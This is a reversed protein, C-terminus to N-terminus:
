QMECVPAAFEGNYSGQFGISHSQGTAISATHDLGEIRITQSDIQTYSASWGNGLTVEIPFKLEAIWGNVLETGINSLTIGELVFGGPWVNQSGLTCTVTPDTVTIAIVSIDTLPAKNEDIAVVSVLQEGLTTATFIADAGDFVYQIEGAFEAMFGAANTVDASVSLVKNLEIRDGNAPSIVTLGSPLVDLANLSISDSVESVNGTADIGVLEVVFSTAESPTTVVVVGQDGAAILEGNIYANAGAFKNLDYSIEVDSGTKVSSADAPSTITVSATLSAYYDTVNTGNAGLSIQHDLGIFQGNQDKWLSPEFLAYKEADWTKWDYGLLGGTDGSNPNICWFTHHLGHEIILDRIAVMWKENDGGDMYGGWEGILLPAINEEHIFMWNDKWVDEYLTDKNFGEYFWEQLFVLPGYDHPSYMLQDQNEGLDIPHDKVGRLNGGWWNNHYDNKDQSSWNEGDIPYSQIGECMVLLNPNIALIRKSATECAYKWNNEDTSDDWKAFEEGGYPTGHPENEIDMAIITDDDVYRKTIWEWSEYFIESTIEGKYWMPAVHGSNDAEASHVDLLIKIGYTKSAAVFADFIELDTKGSLTPNVSGNVAPLTSKGQSWEYMVETSIPVRLINIGRDAIASLTEELNVAWLGHLVRETTNYGFWNAGTLWVENGQMDVIKNGEIHLWDDNTDALAHAVTGLMLSSAILAACYNLKM